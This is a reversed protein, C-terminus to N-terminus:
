SSKAAQRREYDEIRQKLETYEECPLWCARDLVALRQKAAALDGTELYLEGLYENAGRHEPELALARNYSALAADLRGLKRQSYGLQNWADANAPNIAVFGELLPVAAAYNGAKVHQVAMDYATMPAAASPPPSASSSDGSSMAWAPAALLAVLLALPFATRM